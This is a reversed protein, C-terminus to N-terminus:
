KRRIPTIPRTATIWTPVPTMADLSRLVQTYITAPIPLTEGALLSGSTTSGQYAISAIEILGGGNANLRLSTTNSIRYVDDHPDAPRDYSIFARRQAAAAGSYNSPLALNSLIPQAGAFDGSSGAGVEVPYGAVSNWTTANANFDRTGLCLFTKSAFAAAVDGNTSAVVLISGDGQYGGPFAISSVEGRTRAPDVTLNQLKWSSFFQGLQIIALQGDTTANGWVASGIALDTSTNGNLSYSPSFVIATVPTAAAPASADEWVIGGDLSLFVKAGGNTVAAVMGSQSSSAAIAIYPTAAGASGLYGTIEDWALGSAQSRYLHNNVRDLAYFAGSGIVFSTVESPNVIVNGESGIGPLAEWQLPDQAAAAPSAALPGIIITMILFAAAVVKRM